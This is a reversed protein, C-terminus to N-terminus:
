APSRRRGSGEYLRSLVVRAKERLLHEAKNESQPMYTLKPDEHTSPEWPEEECGSFPEFEFSLGGHPGAGIKKLYTPFYPGVRAVIEELEETTIWFSYGLPM